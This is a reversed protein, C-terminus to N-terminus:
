WLRWWPRPHSVSPRPSGHLPSGLFAGIEECTDPLGYQRLLSVANGFTTRSNPFAGLAAIRVAERQDDNLSDLPVRRGGPALAIELLAEDFAEGWALHRRHAELLVSLLESAREASVAAVPVALDNYFRGASPLADYREVLDADAERVIGTLEELAEEPAERGVGAVYAGLAAARCPESAETRALRRFLEAQRGGTLGYLVRVANGRVAEETETEIRRLLAAEAAERHEPLASLLHTAALRTAPEPDELLGLYVPLGEGLRERVLAELQPGWPGSGDALYGEPSVEDGCEEIQEVSIAGGLAVETLLSLVLPKEPAEPSAVIETLFPIAAAAAPCLSGQHVISMELKDYAWGRTRADPHVLARVEEPTRTAWGYAHRLKGWDVESLAELM